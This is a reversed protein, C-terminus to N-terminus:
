EQKTTGVMHVPCQPARVRSAPGPWHPGGRRSREAASHTCYASLGGPPAEQRADSYRLTGEHIKKWAAAADQQMGGGQRAAVPDAIQALPGVAEDVPEGAVVLGDPLHQRQPRCAVTVRGVLGKGGERAVRQEDTEVLEGPAAPQGGARKVVRRIEWPAAHVEARHPGIM